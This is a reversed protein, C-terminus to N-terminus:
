AVFAIESAGRLWDGPRPLELREDDWMEHTLERSEGETLFVTNMADDSIEEKIADLAHAQVAWYNGHFCNKGPITVRTDAVLGKEKELLVSGGDFATFKMPELTTETGDKRVIKVERSTTNVYCILDEPVYLTAKALNDFKYMM